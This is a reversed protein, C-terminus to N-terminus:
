CCVPPTRRGAPFRRRCAEDMIGGVLEDETRVHDIRGPVALPKLIVTDGNGGTLGNDMM